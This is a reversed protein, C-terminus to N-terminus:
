FLLTLYRYAIFGDSNKQFLALIETYKLAPLGNISGSACLQFCLALLLCFNRVIEGRAYKGPSVSFLTLMVHAETM